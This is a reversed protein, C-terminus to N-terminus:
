SGALTELKTLWHPALLDKVFRVETAGEVSIALRITM